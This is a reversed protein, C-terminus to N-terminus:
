ATPKVLGARRLFREVETRELPELSSLYLSVSAMIRARLRYLRVRLTGQDIGMERAVLAHGGGVAELVLCDQPRLAKSCWGGFRAIAHSARAPAREGLPDAARDFGFESHASLVTGEGGIEGAATEHCRERRKRDRAANRARNRVAVSLYTRWNRPVKHRVIATRVVDDIVSTVMENREAYQVGHSRAVVCLYPTMRVFLQRIAEPDGRAISASDVPIEPETRAPDLSPKPNRPRRGSPKGPTGPADASPVRLEQLGLETVEYSVRRYPVASRLAERGAPTIEIMMRREM